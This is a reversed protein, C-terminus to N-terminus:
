PHTATHLMIYPIDTIELGRLDGDEDYLRGVTMSGANFTFLLDDSANTDQVLPFPPNNGPASVTVPVDLYV